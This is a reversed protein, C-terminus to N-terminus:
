TSPPPLPTPTPSTPMGEVSIDDHFVPSLNGLADRYQVSVYFGTWNIPVAVPYIRAAVFPEWHAESLEFEDFTRMGVRARMETVEAFPSQAGFAVRVDVTSGAAGGVCCRGDEIDVYGQVPPTPEPMWPTVSPASVRTALYSMLTAQQSIQTSLAANEEGLAEITRDPGDPNVTVSWSCAVLVGALSLAGLALDKRMKERTRNSM